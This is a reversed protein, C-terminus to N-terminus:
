QIFHNGSRAQPLCLHFSWLALQVALGASTSLEPDSAARTQPDPNLEWCVFPLEYGNLKLKIPVQHGRRAQAPVARVHNVYMCAVCVRFIFIDKTLFFGSM